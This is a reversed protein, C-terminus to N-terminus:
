IKANITSNGGILLCDIISDNLIVLMEECLYNMPAGIKKQYTFSIKYFAYPAGRLVNSTYV